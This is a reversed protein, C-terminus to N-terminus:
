GTECVNLARPVLVTQAIFLETVTLMFCFPITFLTQVQLLTATVLVDPNLLM